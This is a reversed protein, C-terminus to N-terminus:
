FNGGSELRGVWSKSLEPVKGDMFLDELHDIAKKAETYNPYEVKFLGEHDQVFKERKKRVQAFTSKTVRPKLESSYVHFTGYQSFYCNGKGSFNEVAGRKSKNKGAQYARRGAERRRQSEDALYQDLEAGTVLCDMAGPMRLIEPKMTKIYKSGVSKKLANLTSHFNCGLIRGAETAGWDARFKQCAENFPERHFVYFKQSM